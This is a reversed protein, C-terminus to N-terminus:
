EISFSELEVPLGLVQFYAVVPDHDSIRTPTAPNNRATEAFDADIRPHEVRRAATGAVLPANILVHDLTQASGDFTYSYRDAAPALSSLNTLDTVVLDSGDNPVATQNNPTPTGLITNMADALGDNYEFANFDGVVVISELPDAVQRTNILAAIDDAQKQRKIRVRNGTTGNAPIACATESNASGLSRNHVAIVTIPFSAGSVGNVTGTFRLPPRDHLVDPLLTCSDIYTSADLEQVITSGSIRPTSGFAIQRKLLFGVDIGGVDNGEVLFAEYLPNPQSNAVADANIQAALSQLTTLNEVEVVALVDPFRLYNRIALSAKAKRNNYATTTLVPEGIGDDVDDFFRQLNFASVTFENALPATVPTPNVTGTVVPPSAPDPLISYTRFSYDLPGVLGTVVQGADVDFLAAGTLGDADVRIREPNADFRPVPPITVGDCCSPPPDDAPIGAERFPRAVGTVVGYFVGSSTATANPENVNGLTPAVVTLSALSARMGELRELQHINGTPDPFTTTLPIPAPLPNGVSILSVSPSSLETLPPQLLDAPPVFEVVTATVQVRNGVAAAAPPASSTFVFVGESTLPDADYDAEAEQIFFGNSKVGTVIARATVVQGVLPSSNGPGQIDHIRTVTVDDNNITGLGQADLVVVGGGSVNSVNVFFSENPEVTLDGNVTVDFTSSSNGALITQGTLVNAVYDNDATTATNDQTAIDFTVNAAAPASLSVTFQFTSTGADGEALTVDNISLTTPCPATSVVIDDIGVWEDNGVANSTIVRVQVEAQNDAAAPLVACVATTLTAQSPGGTADAVFGSPVNTFNGSGGVRYQLAVPQVANDTTGDLDRLNYSVAIGTAGTTNLYLVVYPADATGSGQLAVAPNTIEFEAVGGNSISTSTQNAIVDLDNAVGSVGLLTQPDVGTGTTINQGLYGEVGPVGSWNDNVTILGTNAWNQSFPLTQPTTDAVAAPACVAGLALAAALLRPSLKNTM